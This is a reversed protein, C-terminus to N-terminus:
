RGRRRKGAFYGLAFTGGFVLAATFIMSPLRWPGPDGYPALVIPDGVTNYITLKPKLIQAFSPSTPPPAGSPGPVGPTAPAAAGAGALPKVMTFPPTLASEVTIADISDGAWTAIKTTLKSLLDEVPNAAFASLAVRM